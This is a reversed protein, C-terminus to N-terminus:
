SVGILQRLRLLVTETVEAGDSAVAWAAQAALAARDPALLDGLAEALDSASGVARAARAAGLRGFVTGYPGPRPGYIIASGLAAPELPNRLAGEGALSGGIYTVPALRYWLGYEEASDPLYVATESDPEEDLARRAVIWGEMAELQAALAEARAAQEPVLILLLRHSLRLAASHAAIVAAEEAQPVAAALWIPRAKLVEALAAREGEHCALAASVAEMRGLVDVQAAGAKRYSQAAVEDLAFVHRLSQVAGRMLGPFWGDRGRVLSPERGDVVMAPIGRAEAEFLLAPRIEGDSLVIADPQWHTLFARVDAPQDAPAPMQGAERPGTVLTAIGDEEALKNALHMLGQLAGERPAHLWVLRGAPRPPFAGDGVAERRGTLNYLRRGLSLAM